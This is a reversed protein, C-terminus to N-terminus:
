VSAATHIALVSAALALHRTAVIPQILTAAAFDAALALAISSAEGLAVLAQSAM